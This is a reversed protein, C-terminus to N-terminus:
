TRQDLMSTISLKNVIIQDTTGLTAQDTKNISDIQIQPKTLIQTLALKDIPHRITKIGTNPNSILTRPTTLGLTLDEERKLTMLSSQAASKTTRHRNNKLIMTPKLEAICSLTDM